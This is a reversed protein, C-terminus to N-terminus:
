RRIPQIVLTGVFWCTGAIKSCMYMGSSLMNFDQCYAMLQTGLHMKPVHGVHAAVGYITSRYKLMEAESLKTPMGRIRRCIACSLSFICVLQSSHSSESRPTFQAAVTTSIDRLACKSWGAHHCWRPQWPELLLGSSKEAHQRELTMWDQRSSCCRQCSRHCQLATRPQTVGRPVQWRSLSVSSFAFLRYTM